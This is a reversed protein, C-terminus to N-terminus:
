NDNLGFIPIGLDSKLEDINNSSYQKSKKAEVEKETLYKVRTSDSSALKIQPVTWEWMYAEKTVSPNEKLFDMM